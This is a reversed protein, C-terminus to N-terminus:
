DLPVGATDEDGYGASHLLTVLEGLYMVRYWTMPFERMSPPMGQAVALSSPSENKCLELQKLVRASNYSLPVDFMIDLASAMCLEDHQKPNMVGLWQDVRRIGVGPPKIVLVGIAAQAHLTELEMEGMWESMKISGGAYKVEWCIGPTGTIDGMDHTGRLARRECFPWGHELLYRAVATEAMTGKAKSKSM